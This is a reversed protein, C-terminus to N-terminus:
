KGAGRSKQGGLVKINQVTPIIIKEVLIKARNKKRKRGLKGVM